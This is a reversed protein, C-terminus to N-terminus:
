SEGHNSYIEPVNEFLGLAYMQRSSLPEPIPTNSLQELVTRPGIEEEPDISPLVTNPCYFEEQNPTTPMLDPSPIM